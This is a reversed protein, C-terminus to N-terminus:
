LRVSVRFGCVSKFMRLLKEDGAKWKVKEIGGIATALVLTLTLFTCLIM